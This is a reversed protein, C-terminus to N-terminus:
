PKPEPVKVPLALIGHDGHVPCVIKRGVVRYTAKTTYCIDTIEPYDYYFFKKQSSHFFGKPSMCSDAIGPYNYIREKLITFWLSDPLTVNNEKEYIEIVKRIEYMQSACGISGPESRAILLFGWGKLSFGMAFLLVAIILYKLWGRKRAAIERISLFLVYLSLVWLGLWLTRLILRIGCLRDVVPFEDKSPGETGHIPCRLQKDSFYYNSRHAWPVVAFTSRTAEDLLKQLEYKHSTNAQIKLMDENLYRMQRICYRMRLQYNPIMPTAACYVYIVVFLFVGLLFYSIVRLFKLGKKFLGGLLFLIGTMGLVLLYINVIHYHL